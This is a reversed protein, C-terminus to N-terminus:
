ISVLEYIRQYSFPNGSGKFVDNEYLEEASNPESGEQNLIVISSFEDVLLGTESVANTFILKPSWAKGLEEKNLSNFNNSFNKLNFFMIRPDVWTLTFSFRAVYVMKMVDIDGIYTLNMSINVHTGELSRDALPPDYILNHDNSAPVM